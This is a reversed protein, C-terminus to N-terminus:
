WQFSLFPQLSVEALSPARGPFSHMLPPPPPRGAPPKTGWIGAAGEAAPHQLPAIGTRPFALLRRGLHTLLGGPERNSGSRVALAGWVGWGPHGRPSHRCVGAGAVSRERASFKCHPQPPARPHPHPSICLLPPPLLLGLEKRRRRRRRERRRRRWRRRGSFCGFPQLEM